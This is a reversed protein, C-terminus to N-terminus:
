LAPHPLECADRALARAQLRSLLRAETDAAADAARAAAATVAELERLIPVTAETDNAILEDRAAELEQCRRELSALQARLADERTASRAEAAALTAQLSAMRAAHAAVSAQLAAERELAEKEARAAESQVEESSAQVILQSKQAEQELAELKQRLEDRQSETDKLTARLKRVVGEVESQAACVDAADSARAGTRLAYRSGLCRTARPASRWCRPTRTRCAQPTRKWKRRATSRSCLGPKAGAADRVSHAADLRKLLNERESKLIIIQGYPPAYRRRRVM